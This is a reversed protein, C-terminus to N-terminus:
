VPYHFLVINNEQFLQITHIFLAREMFGCPMAIM